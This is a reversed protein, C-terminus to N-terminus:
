RSPETAGPVSFAGLAQALSNWDAADVVYRPAGLRASSKAAAFRADAGISLRKQGPAEISLVAHEFRGGRYNYRRSGCGCTLSSRPASFTVAGSKLDRVSLQSPDLELESVADRQLSRRVTFVLGAAVIPLVQRVNLQADPAISVPPSAADQGMCTM